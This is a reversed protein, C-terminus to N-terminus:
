AQSVPRNSGETRQSKEADKIDTGCTIEPYVSASM